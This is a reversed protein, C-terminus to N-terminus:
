NGKRGIFVLGDPGTRYGKDALFAHWAGDHHLTEDQAMFQAWFRELLKADRTRGALVPVWDWAAPLESGQRVKAVYAAILFPRFDKARERVDGWMVEVGSHEPYSGFVDNSVCAWWIDSVESDGLADMMVQCPESLERRVEWAMFQGWSDHIEDHELESHDGEDYLPYDVALDVLVSLMDETLDAVFCGLGNTNMYSVRVWPFDPFDRLLSRYNSRVVTSAQGYSDEDLAINDFYTFAEGWYESVEPSIGLRHDDTMQYPSVYGNETDERRVTALGFSALRLQRVTDEFDLPSPDNLPRDTDM